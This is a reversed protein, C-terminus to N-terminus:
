GKGLVLSGKGGGRTFPAGGRELFFAGKKGEGADQTKGQFAGSSRENEKKGLIRLGRGGVERL